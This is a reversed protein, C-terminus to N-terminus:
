RCIDQTNSASSLKEFVNLAVQTLNDFVDSSCASTLIASDQSLLSQIYPSLQSGPPSCVADFFPASNQSPINLSTLIDDASQLSRIFTQVM